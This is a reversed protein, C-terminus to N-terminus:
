SLHSGPSSKRDMGLSMALPIVSWPLVSLAPLTRTRAAFALLSEQMASEEREKEEMAVRNRRRQRAAKNPRNKRRRHGEPDATDETATVTEEVAIERAMERWRALLICVRQYVVNHDEPRYVVLAWRQWPQHASSVVPVPDTLSERAGRAGVIWGKIICELEPSVAVARRQELRIIAKEVMRHIFVGDAEGTSPLASSNTFAGGCLSDLTDSGGDAVLLRAVKPSPELYRVLKEKADRLTHAVHPVLGVCFCFLFALFWWAFAWGAARSFFPSRSVTSHGEDSGGAVVLDQEVTEEGLPIVVSAKTETGNILCIYDEFGGFAAGQVHSATDQHWPGAYMRTVEIVRYVEGICATAQFASSLRRVFDDTPRVFGPVPYFTGWIVFSVFVGLFPLLLM